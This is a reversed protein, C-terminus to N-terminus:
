NFQKNFSRELLLRVRLRRLSDADCNYHTLILSRWHLFSIHFNLIILFSTIVSYNLLTAPLTKGSILKL